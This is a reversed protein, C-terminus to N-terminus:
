ERAPPCGAVLESVKAFAYGRARFLPVLDRVTAATGHGRGNIHLIIISGAQVWRIADREMLDATRDPDPDGLAADWTIPLVGTTRAIEPLTPPLDGYPPRFLPAPEAGLEILAARGDVIESRIVAATANILRPHRHGHLAIEFFPV